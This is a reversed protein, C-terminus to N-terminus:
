QNMSNMANGTSGAGHVGDLLRIIQDKLQRIELKQMLIQQNNEEVQRTLESIRSKEDPNFNTATQYGQQQQDKRRLMFPTTGNSSPRPGGGASIGRLRDGGTTSSLPDEDLRAHTALQKKM